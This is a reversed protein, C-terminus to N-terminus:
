HRSNESPVLTKQGPGGLAAMLVRRPWSLTRLLSMTVPDCHCKHRGMCDRSDKKMPFPSPSRSYYTAAPATVPCYEERIYQVTLDWGHIGTGGMDMDMSGDFTHKAYSAPIALPLMIQSFDFDDSKAHSAFTTAM